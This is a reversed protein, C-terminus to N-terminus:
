YGTHMHIMCTYITGDKRITGAGIAGSVVSQLMNKGRARM